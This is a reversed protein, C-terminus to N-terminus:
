LKDVEYAKVWKRIANDSVKFKRGTETYGYKEIMELLEDYSPRSIRRRAYQSCKTSCYKTGYVDSECGICKGTPKIEELNLNNNASNRDQNIDLVSDPNHTEAHCNRCLLTCKKLEKIISDWNKLRLSKWDFEKQTPDLHHFELAAYNKSYGCISCKNGFLAIAQLKRDTWRQKQVKYLCSKCWSCVRKETRKKFFDDINKNECCKTCYKIEM